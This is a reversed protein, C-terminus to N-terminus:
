GYPNEMFAAILSPVPAEQGIPPAVTVSLSMVSSTGASTPKDPVPLSAKLIITMQEAASPKVTPTRAVAGSPEGASVLRCSEFMGIAASLRHILSVPIEISFALAPIYVIVTVKYPLSPWGTADAVFSIRTLDLSSRTLPIRRALTLRSLCTGSGTALMPKAVPFRIHVRGGYRGFGAAVALGRLIESEPAHRWAYVRQDDRLRPVGREGNLRHDDAVLVDVERLVAARLRPQNVQRAAVDVPVPHDVASVERDEPM